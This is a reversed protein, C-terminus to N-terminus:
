GAKAGTDVKPETVAKNNSDWAELGLALFVFGFFALFFAGIVIRKRKPKYHSEPLTPGSVFKYVASQLKRFYSFQESLLYSALKGEEDAKGAFFREKEELLTTLLSDNVLYEMNGKFLYATKDLYGLLLRNIGINRLNRQVQIQNDQISMKVAVLQQQPSLYKETSASANVLERDTKAGFGPLKLLQNEILSEKEKLDRTDIGLNLNAKELQFIGTESRTGISELFNGVQMNLLTTLIYSGMVMTKKRASEPSRGLGEIEIGLVSNNVTKIGPKEYEFAYVPKFHIEFFEESLDWEEKSGKRKVFKRFLGPSRYIKTYSRYVPIEMATKLEDRDAKKITSFSIM